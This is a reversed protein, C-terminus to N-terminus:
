LKGTKSSRNSFCAPAFAFLRRWAVLSEPDNCVKELLQAFLSAAAPRAGKPVRKLVTSRDYVILQRTPDTLSREFDSLRKLLEPKNGRNPLGRASLASRLAPVRMRGFDLDRYTISLSPEARTCGECECYFALVTSGQEETLGICNGHYWEECKDCSIM